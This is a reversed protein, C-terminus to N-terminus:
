HKDIRSATLWKRGDKESVTGTVTARIEQTCAEGAQATVDNKTLYYETKAGAADTVILVDQCEHADAKKLMCKACMLSGSLTDEVAAFAPRMPVLLMVALSLWLLSKM